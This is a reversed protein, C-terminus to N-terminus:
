SVGQLLRRWLVLQLPMDHWLLGPAEFLARPMAGPEDDYRRTRM